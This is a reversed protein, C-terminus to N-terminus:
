FHLPPAHYPLFTDFTIGLISTIKPIICFHKVSFAPRLAYRAPLYCEILFSNNVYFIFFIEGEAPSEFNFFGSFKVMNLGNKNNMKTENVNLYLFM